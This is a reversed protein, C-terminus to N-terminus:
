AYSPGHSYNTIIINITSKSLLSKSRSVSAGRTGMSTVITVHPQYTYRHFPRKAPLCPCIARGKLLFLIRHFIPTGAKLLIGVLAKWAWLRRLNPGPLLGLHFAMKKYWCSSEVWFSGHCVLRTYVLLFNKVCNIYRHFTEEPLPPLPQAVSLM